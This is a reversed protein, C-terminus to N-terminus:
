ERGLRKEVFGLTPMESCPVTGVRRGLAGHRGTGAQIAEKPGTDGARRSTIPAQEEQRGWSYGRVGPAENGAHWRQMGKLRVVAMSKRQGSVHPQITDAQGRPSPKPTLSESSYGRAPTDSCGHADTEGNSQAGRPSHSPRKMETGLKVGCLAPCRTPTPLHKSFQISDGRCSQSAPLAPIGLGVRGSFM